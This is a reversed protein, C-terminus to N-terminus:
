DANFCRSKMALSIDKSTHFSTQLFYLFTM